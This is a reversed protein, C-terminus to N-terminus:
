GTWLVALFTVIGNEVVHYFCLYILLYMFLKSCGKRNEESKETRLVCETRSLRVTLGRCRGEM